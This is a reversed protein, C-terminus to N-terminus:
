IPKAILTVVITPLKVVTVAAGALVDAGDPWFDAGGKIGAPLATDALPSLKGAARASTEARSRSRVM